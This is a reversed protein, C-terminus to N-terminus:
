PRSDDHNADSMHRDATRVHNTKITRIRHIEKIRRRVEHVSQIEQMLARLARLARSRLVVWLKCISTDVLDEIECSTKKKLISSIYVLYSKNDTHPICRFPVGLPAHALAYLDHPEWGRAAHAIVPSWILYSRRYVCFGLYKDLTVSLM